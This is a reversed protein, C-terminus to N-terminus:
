LRIGSQEEPGAPGDSTGISSLFRRGASPRVAAGRPDPCGPLSSVRDGSRRGEAAPFRAVSVIGPAGIIGNGEKGEVPRRRTATM